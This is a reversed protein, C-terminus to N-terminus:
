RDGRRGAVVGDANYGWQSGVGSWGVRWDLRLEDDGGHRLFHAADLEGEEV